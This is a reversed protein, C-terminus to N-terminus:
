NTDRTLRTIVAKLMALMDPRDCNSAYNMRDSDREVVMVTVLMGPYAAECTRILAQMVNRADASAPQFSGPECNEDDTGHRALKKMSEGLIRRRARRRHTENRV